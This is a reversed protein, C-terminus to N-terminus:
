TVVTRARFEVVGQAPGDADRVVFGRLFRLGVIRWGVLVVPMAVVAAEVAAMAAKLGSTGASGDWISVQFRHERGDSDKRSWDTVVDTGITAYPLVAGPPVADFVGSLVAMVGADGTLAAHLGRQLALSASASM